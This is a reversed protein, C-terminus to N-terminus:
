PAVANYSNALRRVTQELTELRHQLSRIEAELTELRAEKQQVLRHLGQIAALSVGDADISTIHDDDIGVAFAAHFDQAMPGIHPTGPDNRYVWRSIPLTSV